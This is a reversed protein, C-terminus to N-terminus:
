VACFISFVVFTYAEQFQKLWRKLSEETSANKKFGKRYFRKLNIPAKTKWLRLVCMAKKRMTAMKVTEDCLMITRPSAVERSFFFHRIHTNTSLLEM